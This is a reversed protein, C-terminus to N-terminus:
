GDTGTSRSSILVVKPVNVSAIVPAARVEQVPYLGPLKEKGFSSGSIKSSWARVLSLAVEVSGISLCVKDMLM